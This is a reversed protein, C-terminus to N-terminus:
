SAQCLPARQSSVKSREECEARLQICAGPKGTDPGLLRRKHRAPVPPVLGGSWAAAAAPPPAPEAAGGAGLQRRRDPGPFPSIRGHTVIKRCVPRSACTTHLCISRFKFPPHLVKTASVGVVYVRGSVQEVFMDADDGLPPGGPALCAVAEVIMAASPAWLQAGPPLPQPPPPANPTSAAQDFTPQQAVQFHLAARSLATPRGTSFSVVFAELSAWSDFPPPHLCLRLFPQCSRVDVISEISALTTSVLEVLLALQKGSHGPGWKSPSPHSAARASCSSSCANTTTSRRTM